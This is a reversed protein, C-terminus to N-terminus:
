PASEGPGSPVRRGQGDPRQAVLLAEAGAPGYGAALFARVSAANGPAIQAWLTAGAPVLHRAARALRRGLGRGQRDPDVEIATEWRGGVGRGITVVGGDATWARVDDRARDARALRPHSLDSTPTLEVLPDGPLAGAIALLDVGQARRGTRDALAQLFAPSLPAGLEGPPLLRRVWAPDADTFIVTHGTFAIVGADRPSPQAEITVGGDAAPFRGRAAGALLGALSEGV